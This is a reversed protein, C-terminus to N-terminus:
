FGNLVRLYRVSLAEHMENVITHDIEGFPSCLLVDLANIAQEIADLTPSDIHKRYNELQQM